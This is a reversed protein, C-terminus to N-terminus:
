GIVLDSIDIERINIIKDMREKQQDSLIRYSGSRRGITNRRDDIIRRDSSTRREPVSPDNNSKRRDRGSRRKELKAISISYM